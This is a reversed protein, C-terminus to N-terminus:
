KIYFSIDNLDLEMKSVLMRMNSLISETSLNVELFLKEPIELSARLDNKNESIYKKFDKDKASKLFQGSDLDYLTLVVQEYFKRWNKIKREEDDIFKFSEIKEGTFNYDDDSLTFLKSDDKQPAYHTAPLKWINLAINKLKEARKRIAEENWCSIMQLDKNLSLRSERFGHEMDRKECFLKNSMKSNYGTLTVNGLTHLYKEHTKEWDDGIEDKWNKTLTQPMIHEINLINLTILEEIKVEEKNDHNELRELLHIRNKSKFNYVDRTTISTEFEEDRPFRQTSKKNLLIYTFIDVYNEKYDEHKKIEKGLIMFIKNLANTPVDCVLRRFIYSELTLLISELAKLDIIQNNFDDYVELLFPYMVVTELNNIRYLIKNIDENDDNSFSIIKYYQSYKLLDELLKETKLVNIQVYNKFSLYVESKNPIKREKFTLYDRIFNSVNFGTNKEIKNWFNEYLINQNQPSEKMLVFNRVKDAETLDLGTSNLSEFILQPDDEGNKLEIEVILLKKIASFLNDLSIKEEKIREFFYKYNTTINSDLIYDEENNFLCAFASKDDKIPKLRIKKEEKSYKNILYENKIQDKDVKANLIKKDLLKYIALLLLSITTIRQQGDIILYERDDGDDHYISVVSGLFHTQNSKSINILDNFLQECHKQRWDYNRQYVPIVFHKDSGELFYLFRKEKAKM